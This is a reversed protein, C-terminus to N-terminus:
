SVRFIVIVREILNLLEKVFVDEEERLRRSPFKMVSLHCSSAFDLFVSRNSDHQRTAPYVHISAFQIRAHYVVIMISM